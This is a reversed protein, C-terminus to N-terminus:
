KCSATKVSNSNGSVLCRVHVAVTVADSAHDLMAAALERLATACPICGVSIQLLLTPHMQTQMQM